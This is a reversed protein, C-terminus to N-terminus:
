VHAEVPRILAIVQEDWVPEGLEAQLSQLYDWDGEYRSGFRSRCKPAFIMPTGIDGYRIQPERWCTIGHARHADGFLMRFITWDGSTHEHLTTLTGPVSVDDDDITWVYGIDVCHDLVYNRAPHGFDGQKDLTIQLWDASPFRKAFGGVLDSVHPHYGDCAVIVTDGILLENAFSELTQPLSDRGITPVIVSITPEDDVNRFQPCDNAM